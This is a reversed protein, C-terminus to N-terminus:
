LTGNQLRKNAQAVKFVAEQVKTMEIYFWEKTLLASFTVKVQKNKPKDFKLLKFPPLPKMGAIRGHAIADRVDVLSEDITLGGSKIKPYNNYKTILQSLSDYNTFANEPVVDGENMNYLNISQLFSGSSTIETNMLFARLAFELGHFNVLLKGLNIPHEEQKM